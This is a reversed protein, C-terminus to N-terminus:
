AKAHKVLLNLVGEGLSRIAKQMFVQFYDLTLGATTRQGPLAMDGQLTLADDFFRNLLRRFREFRHQVRQPFVEHLAESLSVLDPTRKFLKQGRWNGSAHKYFVVHVASSGEQLRGDKAKHREDNEDQVKKEDAIKRAIEALRADVTIEEPAAKPMDAKLQGWAKLGKKGQGKFPGGTSSDIMGSWDETEDLSSTEVASSASSARTPNGVEASADSKELLLSGPDGGAVAVGSEKGEPVAKDPIESATETEVAQRAKDREVLESMDKRLALRRPRTGKDMVFLKEAQDGQLNTQFFHKWDDLKISGTPPGNCTDLMRFLREPSVGSIAKVDFGAAALTTEWRSRTIEGTALFDFASLANAMSGFFDVLAEAFNGAGIFNGEDDIVPADQNDDKPTEKKEANVPDKGQLPVLGLSERKQVQRFKQYLAKMDASMQPQSQTLRFGGELKTGGGVTTKMADLAGSDAGLFADSTGAAQRERKIDADNAEDALVRRLGPLIHDAQPSVSARASQPSLAASVSKRAVSKRRGPNISVDQRESAPSAVISKRRAAGPETRSSTAQLDDESEVDSDAWTGSVTLSRRSNKPIAIALSKRTIPKHSSARNAWSPSSLEPSEDVHISVHPSRLNPEPVPLQEDSDEAIHESPAPSSMGM